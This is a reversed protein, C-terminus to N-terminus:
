AGFFVWWLFKMKWFLCGVVRHQLTKNVNKLLRGINHALTNTHSHAYVWEIIKCQGMMVLQHWQTSIRDDIQVFAQSHIMWTQFPPFLPFSCLFQLVGFEHHWKLGNMMGWVTQRRESEWVYVEKSWRLHFTSKIVIVHVFHGSVLYLCHSHIYICFPSTGRARPGISAVSGILAGSIIYYFSYHWLVWESVNQSPSNARASIRLGPWCLIHQPESSLLTWKTMEKQIVGQDLYVM